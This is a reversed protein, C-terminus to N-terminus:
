SEERKEDRKSESNFTERIWKVENWKLETKRSKVELREWEGVRESEQKQKSMRSKIQLGMENLKKKKPLQTCKNHTNWQM